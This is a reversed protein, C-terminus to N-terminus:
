QLTQPGEELLYDFNNICNEIDNTVFTELQDQISGSGSDLQIKADECGKKPDCGIDMYRWYPVVEGAVFIGEGGPSTVSPQFNVETLVGGQRGLKRLGAEGTQELCSTILGVAPRAELSVDTTDSGPKNSNIDRDLIFFLAASLLLVVGIIVFLTIQGQKSRRINM